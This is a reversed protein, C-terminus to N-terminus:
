PPYKRWDRPVRRMGSFTNGRLAKVPKSRRVKLLRDLELIVIDDVFGMQKDLLQFNKIQGTMTWFVISFILFVQKMIQQPQQLMWTPISHTQSLIGYLNRMKVHRASGRVGDLLVKTMESVALHSQIESLQASIVDLKASLNINEEEVVKLRKSLHENEEKLLLNQSELDAMQRRKKDRSMQAAHRNRLIRERQRQEKEELSEAKRKRGGAAKKKLNSEDNISLDDNDSNPTSVTSKLPLAPKIPKVPTVLSASPTTPTTSPTITPTTPLSCSFIKDTYKQLEEVNIYEQLFLDNSQAIAIISEDTSLSNELDQSSSSLTPSYILSNLQSLDTYETNSSTNNNNNEQTSAVMDEKSWINNSNSSIVLNVQENDSSKYETSNKILSM